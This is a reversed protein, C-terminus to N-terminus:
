RTVWDKWLMCKIINVRNKCKGVIRTIHNKFRLGSDITVGLFKFENVTGIVEDDAKLGIDWSTDANSSSIILAKTKDKNIKM